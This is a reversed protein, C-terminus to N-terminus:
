CPCSMCVFSGLPVFSVYALHTAITMAAHMIDLGRKHLQGRFVSALLGFRKLYAFLHEIESRIFRRAFAVSLLVLSHGLICFYMRIRLVIHLKLM